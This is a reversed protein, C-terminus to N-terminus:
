VVIRAALHLPCGAAVLSRALQLDAGSAALIWVQEEGFGLSSFQNLRWRLVPDDEASPEADPELDQEHQETPV